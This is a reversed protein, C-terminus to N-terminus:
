PVRARYFRNSSVGSQPDIFNLPGKLTNTWIPLWNVLDPSAEVVVSQGPPGTLNFRFEGGGFVPDLITPPAYGKRITNFYFDAVYVNGAADVAVGSPYNFRSANGALTTVVWNTGVPTVKRITHNDSVYVNGATDVAVKDPSNFRADGDTGDASGFSGPLGALTTVVGAPTVKRIAHNHTDGVYFNGASDM